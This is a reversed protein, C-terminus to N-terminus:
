LHVKVINHLADLLIPKQIIGKLGHKLMEKLQPEVGFGTLIYFPITCSTENLERYFDFGTKHPMRNDSVICHIRNSHKRIMDLGSDVNSATFVRYELAEFYLRWIELLDEEDDVFLIGKKEHNDIPKEENLDLMQIGPTYDDFDIKELSRLKQIVRNIRDLSEQISSFQGQANESLHKEKCNLLDLNGQISMLPQAIQDSLTVTLASVTEKKKAELLSKTKKELEQELWANRKQLKLVKRYELFRIMGYVTLLLLGFVLLYFPLTRWIPKSILFRFTFVQNSKQNMGNYPVLKVCYSGPVLNMLDLETNEVRKQETTYPGEISIDYCNRKEDIFSNSGYQITFSNRNYDLTVDSKNSIDISNQDKFVLKCFRIKPVLRNKFLHKPNYSTLGKNTAFWSIGDIDAPVPTFSNITYGSPFMRENWTHGDFIVNRNHAIFWITGESDEFITEISGMTSKPKYQNTAKLGDLLWVGNRSGVWIKGSSDKFMESIDYDKLNEILHVHGNEKVMFLGHSTGVLLDNDDTCILSQIEAEKSTRFPIENFVGEKHSWLKYISSFIISGDKREVAHWFRKIPDGKPTFDILKNDKLLAIGRTGGFWIRKKSDEMIWRYAGKAQGKPHQYHTQVGDKISFINHPQIVWVRDTSDVFVTYAPQDKLIESVVEAKKSDHEMKLLGYETSTFWKTGQSDISLRSIPTGGHISFHEFARDSYKIVGGNFFSLWINQEMDCLASTVFLSPVGNEIGYNTISGTRTNFRVVGMGWTGIWLTDVRDSILKSVALSKGEILTLPKIVADQYKYLGSSAGIWLSGQHIVMSRVTKPTKGIVSISRKETQSPFDIKFIDGKYTGVMLSEEFMIVSRIDENPLVAEAGSDTLLYLGSEGGVWLVGPQVSYFVRTPAEPISEIRKAKGDAFIAAGRPTGFFLNNSNECISLVPSSPVGHRAQYLDYKKSDYCLLGELDGFWMRGTQDQYISWVRRSPFGTTSDYYQFNLSQALVSDAFFLSLLVWGLITIDQKKGRLTFMICMIATQPIILLCFIVGYKRNFHM